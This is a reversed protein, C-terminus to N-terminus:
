ERAMEEAIPAIRRVMEMIGEANPHVGDPLMLRSDGYVGEPFFPYLKADFQEAVNKFAHETEKRYSPDYSAPAKMGAILVAIHPNRGKVDDLIAQLNATMHVPPVGRLLDNGGLALILADYEEVPVSAIRRAGDATTDGVRGYNAVAVDLGKARLREELREPFAFRGPLRYGSVLSDGFVAILFPKACASFPAAVLLFVCLILRM